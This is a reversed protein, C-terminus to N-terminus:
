SAHFAGREQRRVTKWIGSATAVVREGIQLSASMFTLSKTRRVIQCRAEVFEGIQAADVFHVDLQITAQPQRDNAEWAAVGLARDALTMLMGGQVVGRSNHHKPDAQFGFALSEGSRRVWLPGVLGIFGTDTHLEWGEAAPDFVALSKSSLRSDRSM